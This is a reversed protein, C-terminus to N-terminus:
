CVGSQACLGELVVVLSNRLACSYEEIEELDLSRSPRNWHHCTQNINSKNGRFLLAFYYFCCRDFKGDSINVKLFNLDLPFQSIFCRSRSYM